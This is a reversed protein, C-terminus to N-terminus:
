QQFPTPLAAKSSAKSASGGAGFPGSRKLLHRLLAHARYGACVHMACTTSDFNGSAHPTRAQALPRAACARAPPQPTSGARASAVVPAFAKTASASRTAAPSSWASATAAVPAAGVRPPHDIHIATFPATSTEAPARRAGQLRARAPTVPARKHAEVSGHATRRRSGKATATGTTTTSTSPAGGVIGMSRAPPPPPGELRSARLGPARGGTSLTPTARGAAPRVAAQPTRSYAM